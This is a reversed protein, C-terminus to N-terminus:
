ALYLPEDLTALSRDRWVRWVCSRTNVTVWEHESIEVTGQAFERPDVLEGNEYQFFEQYIQVQDGTEVDWGSKTKPENAISALQRSYKPMLKRAVAVQKASLTRGRTIQEAFSSLIGADRGNFGVGNHYKTTLASQEDATQRQWIAVIARRLWRPDTLLKERIMEATYM